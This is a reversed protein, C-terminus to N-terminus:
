KEDNVFTQKVRGDRSLNIRVVTQSQSNLFNVQFQNIDGSANLVIEPSTNSEISSKWSLKAGKPLSHFSFLSKSPMSSWANDLNFRVAQYGNKSLRIGLTSAELIAQQQTLKIFQVFSESALQIRKNQGFDGFYLVAFTVSIGIIIVVILIELLTFGPLKKFNPFNRNLMGTALKQM